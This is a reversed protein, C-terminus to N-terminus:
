RRRRRAAPWSLAILGGSFLLGTVPEPVITVKDLGYTFPV